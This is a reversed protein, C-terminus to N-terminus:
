SWCYKFFFHIIIIIPIYPLFKSLFLSLSLCAAIEQWSNLPARLNDWPNDPSAIPRECTTKVWKKGICGKEAGRFVDSFRLTKQHKWPKSFPHMPFLHTLTYRIICTDQFFVWFNRANKFWDVINVRGTRIGSSYLFNVYTKIKVSRKPAESM